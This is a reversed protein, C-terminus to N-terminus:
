EALEACIIFFLLKSNGSSVVFIRFNSFKLVLTGKKELIRRANMGIVLLLKRNFFCKKEIYVKSGLLATINEQLMDELQGCPENEEGYDFSLESERM